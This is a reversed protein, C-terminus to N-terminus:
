KKVQAQAIQRLNKRCGLIRLLKAKQIRLAKKQNPDVGRQDVLSPKPFIWDLSKHFIERYNGNNQKFINEFRSCCKVQEAYM